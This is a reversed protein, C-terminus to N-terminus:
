WPLWRGLKLLMRLSTFQPAAARRIVGVSSAVYELIM